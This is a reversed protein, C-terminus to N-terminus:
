VTWESVDLQRDCNAELFAQEHSVLIASRELGMQRLVTGLADIAQGDLNNTPEDLLVVHANSNLCAWAQLLQYQGGSMRGVPQDLLPAILKEIAENGLASPDSEADLLALMERGLLPLEPPREPRQRHHVVRLEDRREIRGSFIHATGTLARLLTSKGAGNAGGLGLVEGAYLSFSVPGVVPGTYGVVLQDFCVLM